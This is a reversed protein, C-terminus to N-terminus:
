PPNATKERFGKLVTVLGEIEESTLKDKFAPMKSDKQSELKGERIQLVIEADTLKSLRLDKVGLKRAAPTQASGDKSHCSACNKVFSEKADAARATLNAVLTVSLLMAAVIQASQRQVLRKM